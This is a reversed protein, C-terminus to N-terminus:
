ARPSLLQARPARPCSPEAATTCRSLQEVAHDEPILFNVWTEQVPLRMELWQVVLSAELGLKLLVCCSLWIHRNRTRPLIDHWLFTLRIQKTPIATPVSLTNLSAKEHLVCPNPILIYGEMGTPSVLSVELRGVALNTSIPIWMEMKRWAGLIPIYTACDPCPPLKEYQYNKQGTCEWGPPPWEWIPEQLSNTFWDQGTGQPIQATGLSSKHLTPSRYQM